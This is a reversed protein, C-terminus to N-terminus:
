KSRRPAPAIDSVTLLVVTHHHGAQAGFLKGSAQVTRGVLHRYRVFPDDDGVFVLQIRRIGSHAQDYFDDSAETCISHELRLVWYTEKADGQAINEYNPPGPFNAREVVGRLAVTEPDYQLCNSSSSIQADRKPDETVVAATGPSVSSTEMSSPPPAATQDPIAHAVEPVWASSARAPPLSRM